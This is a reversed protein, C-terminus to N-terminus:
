PLQVVTVDALDTGRTVAASNDVRFRFTQYPTSPTGSPLSTTIEGEKAGGVYFEVASGATFEARCRRGVGVSIGSLLTTTSEANGDHVVGLLDGNAVKFGFGKGGDDPAGTTWYDTRDSIGNRLFAGFLLVRDNDFTIPGLYDYERSDLIAYSGSTSGTTIRPGGKQNSVAGSGSTYVGLGDLSSFGERFVLAETRALWAPNLYDINDGISANLAVETSLTEVDQRLPRGDAVRHNDVPHPM